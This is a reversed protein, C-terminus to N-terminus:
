AELRTVEDTINQRAAKELADRFLPTFFLVPAELFSRLVKARGTRYEADGYAHYEFRIQEAYRAYAPQPAGLVALDLDLFLGEDDNASPSPGGLHNATREIWAAVKKVSEAGAPVAASGSGRDSVLLWAAPSEAVQAAASAFETFLAASECENAGGHAKADYVADHFFIALSLAYPNVISPVALTTTTTTATESSSASAGQNLAVFDLLEFMATIHSLGHYHRQPSAYRDRIRRWWHSALADVKETARRRSEDDGGDLARHAVSASTSAPATTAAPSVAPYKSAPTPLLLISRCLSRWRCALPCDAPSAAQLTL